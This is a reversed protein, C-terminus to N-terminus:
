REDNKDKYRPNKRGHPRRSKSDATAAYFSSKFATKVAGRWTKVRESGLTILTLNRRCGWWFYYMVCYPSCPKEYSVWILSQSFSSKSSPLSLTLRWSKAEISVSLNNRICKGWRMNCVLCVSSASSFSSYEVKVSNCPWPSSSPASTVDFVYKRRTEVPKHRMCQM